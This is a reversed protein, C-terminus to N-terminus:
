RTGWGRNQITALSIFILFVFFTVNLTAWFFIFYFDKFKSKWFYFTLFLSFVMVIGIFYRISYIIGNSDSSFFLSYYVLYFAIFPAVFSIILTPLYNLLFSFPRKISIYKVLFIANVIWSKKWRIQQKVLVRFSDPVITYVRVSDLYIADYGLKLVRGTLSRDDGWTVPKGLFYENLWEDIIKLLISKRYASGCGSCCLIGDTLSESTKITNFSFFYYLHQMRVVFNKNKNSPLACGTVAAINDSVGFPTIMKKIDEKHIYSDSDIHIIIEGSSEKIARYGAHRKGQNKNFHIITLNKYNKKLSNLIKKTGDTSCDNVVVVEIKRKPYNSDFCKKITNEIDKEENYVPIVFSIKPEYKKKINFYKGKFFHYFITLLFRSFLYISVILFYVFLVFLFINEPVSYIYNKLIFIILLLLFAYLVSFTKSTINSAFKNM